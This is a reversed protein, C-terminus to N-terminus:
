VDLNKKVYIADFPLLFLISCKLRNKLCRVHWPAGCGGESIQKSWESSCCHTCQYDQWPPSFVKGPASLVTQM